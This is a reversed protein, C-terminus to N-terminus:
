EISEEDVNIEEGDVYEFEDRLFQRMGNISKLATKLEEAIKQLDRIDDIIPMTIIEM